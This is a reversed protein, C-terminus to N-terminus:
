KYKDSTKNLSFRVMNHKKPIEKTAQPNRENKFGWLLSVELM